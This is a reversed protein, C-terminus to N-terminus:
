ERLEEEEDLLDEFRSCIRERHDVTDAFFDAEDGPEYHYEDEVDVNNDPKDM